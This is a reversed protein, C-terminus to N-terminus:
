SVTLEIDCSFNDADNFKLCYYGSEGYLTYETGDATFKVEPGYDGTSLEYETVPTGSLTTTTSDATKTITGSITISNETVVITLNYAYNFQTRNLTFTQRLDEPIAEGGEQASEQKNVYYNYDDGFEGGILYNYMSGTYSFTYEVEDIVFKLLKGSEDVTYETTSKNDLTVSNEGIVLTHEEAEDTYTGRWETPIAGGTPNQKVFEYKSDLNNKLINGSNGVLEVFKGDELRFLIDPYYINNKGIGIVEAEESNWTVSKAGIVLDVGNVADKWNGQWTEDIDEATAVNNLYFNIETRGSDATSTLRLVPIVGNDTNLSIIYSVGEWEAYYVNSVATKTVTCATDDIKFGDAGVTIVNDATLRYYKGNYSDPLAATVRQEAFTAALATNEDAKFTYTNQATLDEETGNVTFSEIEYNAAAAVTATISAGKAYKGDASAPDLEISGQAANFDLTVTVDSSTATQTFTAALVTDETVTFTYANQATLDAEEGNVTFGAIEYDAKATVTATVSTDKAYKGDASAPSLGISGKEADCQVTVSYRVPPPADNDGECATLGLCLAFLSACLTLLFTKFIKM